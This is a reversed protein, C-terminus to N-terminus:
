AFLFYILYEGNGKAECCINFDSIEDIGYASLNEATHFKIYSELSQKLAEGQNSRSATVPNWWSANSPTLSTDLRLGMSQGISICDAKIAEMDFEFDYATKTNESATQTPTEAPPPNNNETTPKTAPTEAESQKVPETQRVTESQVPERETVEAATELAAVAEPVKSENSESSYISKTSEAKAAAETETVLESEDNRTPATSVDSCGGLLMILVLLAAFISKRMMEVEKVAENYVRLAKAYEILNPVNKQPDNVYGQIAKNFLEKDMKNMNRLVDCITRDRDYIRVDTFNIEGRTAGISLITPEIRYAKVSPYDIRTRQRSTNKDIAINWEAPNRDSYGYYFLATEM